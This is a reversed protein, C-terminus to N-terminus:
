FACNWKLTKMEAVYPDKNPKRSCSAFGLFFANLVCLSNNRRLEKDKYGIVLKFVWQPWPYKLRIYLRKQSKSFFAKLSIACLVIGNTESSQNHINSCINIQCKLQLM